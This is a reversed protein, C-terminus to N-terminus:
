AKVEKNKFNDIIKRAESVTYSEKGDSLAAKVIVPKAGFTKAAEILESVSYKTEYVPKTETKTESVEPKKLNKDAM